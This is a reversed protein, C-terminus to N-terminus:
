PFSVRAAMDFPKHITSSHAQVRYSQAKITFVRLQVSATCVCMHLCVFLHVQAWSIGAAPTLVPDIAVSLYLILIIYDTELEVMKNVQIGTLHLLFTNNIYLNYVSM